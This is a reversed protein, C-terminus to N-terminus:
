FTLIITKLLCVEKERRPINDNTKPSNRTVTFYSLWHLTMINFRLLYQFRLFEDKILKHALIALLKFSLDIQSFREDLLQNRNYGLKNKGQNFHQSIYTYGGEGGPLTM